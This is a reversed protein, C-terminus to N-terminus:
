LYHAIQRVLGYSSFIMLINRSSFKLSSQALEKKMCAQLLILGRRRNWRDCKLFNQIRAESVGQGRLIDIPRMQQHDQLLLTGSNVAKSELLINLVDLNRYRAAIHFPTRGWSDLSVPNAREELLAIVIKSKEASCSM